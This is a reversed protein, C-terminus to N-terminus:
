QYKGTQSESRDYLAFSFSSPNKLDCEYTRGGLCIGPDDKFLLHLIRREDETEAKVVFQGMKGNRTNYEIKM